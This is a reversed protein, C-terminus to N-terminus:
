KRYSANHLNTTEVTVVTQDDCHALAVNHLAGSITSLLDDSRGALLKITIHLMANKTGDGLIVHTVPVARTKISELTVTEQEALCTHLKELLVPVDKVDATHEVIIHPM